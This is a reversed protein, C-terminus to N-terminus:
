AFSLVFSIKIICAVDFERKLWLCRNFLILYAFIFTM